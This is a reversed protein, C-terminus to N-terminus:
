RNQKLSSQKNLMVGVRDTSGHKTNNISFTPGNFDNISDKM